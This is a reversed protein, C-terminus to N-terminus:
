LYNYKTVINTTMELNNTEKSTNKKNQKHYLKTSKYSKQTDHIQVISCKSKCTTPLLQQIECNTSHSFTMM